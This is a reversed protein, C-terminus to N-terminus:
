RYIKKTIQNIKNPALIKYNKLNISSYLITNISNDKIYLSLVLILPAIYM